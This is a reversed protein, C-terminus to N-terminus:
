LIQLDQSRWSLLSAVVLLFTLSSHMKTAAGFADKEEAKDRPFVMLKNPFDPEGRNDMHEALSSGIRLVCYFGYPKAVFQEKTLTRAGKKLEIKYKGPHVSVVHNVDLDSLQESRYTKAGEDDSIKLKVGHYFLGGDYFNMTVVSASKDDSNTGKYIHSSFQLQKEPSKFSRYAVVLLVADQDILNANLFTVQNQDNVQLQIPDGVRIAVEKEDCHGYAIGDMIETESHFVQLSYYSTYANCCRIRRLVEPLDHAPPPLSPQDVELPVGVNMMSRNYLGQTDTSLRQHNRRLGFNKKVAAAGAAAVAGAANGPAHDAGDWVWAGVVQLLALFGVERALNM